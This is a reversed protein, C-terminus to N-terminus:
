SVQEKIRRAIENAANPRAIRLANAAMKALKEPHAFLDRILDALEPLRSQDTQLSAGERAVHQANAKQHNDTAFPFPILVSPLGFALIENIVMGGARSLVLDARAYYDQMALTFDFLEINKTNLEGVKRAVDPYDRRGTQVIFHLEPLKQALEIAAYNLARAGLSGGLVLVTPLPPRTRPDPNPNRLGSGQGRAGEKAAAVLEKRLPTGSLVTRAKLPKDLPFTLYVERAGPAFHRTVRGPICNQELLFYDRHTMQAALLSPVSGFGGAAVIAAPPERRMLSLAQFTGRGVNWGAGFKAALGKGFFGSSSLRFFEFGGRAALEQEM